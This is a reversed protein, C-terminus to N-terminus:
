QQLKIRPDIAAILLDSLLNVVVIMTTIILLIAGVVNQDADLFALLLEQGLEGLVLISAVIPLENFARSLDFGITSIMPITAHRVPYRLLMRREPLGRARAALVYPAELEEQMLVHMTQLQFATSAWGLVFIPIYAHSLFDLVKGISLPKDQFEPSILGVINADFINTNIILLILALAFNPIALGMYSIITVITNSFGSKKIATWVGVPLAIVYSFITAMIIIFFTYLFKEKIINNVSTEMRFSSGFDFRLLINSIWEFYRVMFPRDLGLQKRTEEIDSQTIAVGTGSFKRFLEREAYDGPMLEIIGYIIFSVCMLTILMTIVKVSIYKLLGM